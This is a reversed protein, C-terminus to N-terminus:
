KLKNAKPEFPKTFEIIERGTVTYKTISHLVNTECLEALDAKIQEETSDEYIKKSRTSFATFDAVSIIKPTEVQTQGQTEM